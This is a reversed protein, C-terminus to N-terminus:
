SSNATDLEKYPTVPFTKLLPENCFPKVAVSAITRYKFWRRSCFRMYGTECFLFTFFEEGFYIAGTWQPCILETYIYQGSGIYVYTIRSNKYIDRKLIHCEKYIDKIVSNHACRLAVPIEHEYSLFGFYFGNIARATYGSSIEREVRM